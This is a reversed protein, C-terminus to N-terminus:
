FFNISNLFLCRPRVTLYLQRCTSTARQCRGVFIIVPSFFFPPPGNFPLPFHPIDAGWTRRACALFIPFSFNFLSLLFEFISSSFPFLLSAKGGGGVGKLEQKFNFARKVVTSTSVHEDYLFPVFFFNVVPYDSTNLFSWESGRIWKPVINNM